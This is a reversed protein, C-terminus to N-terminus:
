ERAMEILLIHSKKNANIEVSEGTIEAADRETLNIDGINADGEILVLYAQRDESVPFELKSGESIETAYVNVDAHIKIPAEASRNETWTAIPLWDDKRDDFNFRYDGYNPKYNKGDPLIWIQLFRLREDGNNYESHFVGTGASMYQVQGRQLTEKNGMSDGHTLQGDIVYSIIEMDKHPHIDFGKGPQVMDDNVVRLVGFQMNEPNFYEAFSFHFHSDLWGHVGRGM